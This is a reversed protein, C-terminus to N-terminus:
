LVLSLRNKGDGKGGKSEEMAPLKLPQDKVLAELLIMEKDHQM